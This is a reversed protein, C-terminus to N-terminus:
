STVLVLNINSSPSSLPRADPDWVYVEIFFAGEQEPTWVIIPSQNGAEDFQGDTFGIFEVLSKTGIQKIQVYCVFPQESSEPEPSSLWIESTINFSSGLQIESSKNGDNDIVSVDSITVLKSISNLRIDM